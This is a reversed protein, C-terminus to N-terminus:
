EMIKAYTWNGDTGKKVTFDTQSSLTPIYELGGSKILDKGSKVEPYKKSIETIYGLYLQKIGRKTSEVCNTSSGSLPNKIDQIPPIKKERDMLWDIDKKEAPLKQAYRGLIEKTITQCGENEDYGDLAIIFFRSAASLFDGSKARELISLFRSAEPADSQMSAIKYYNESAKKEGINHATIAMYYPILGNSCPNKLSENNWLNTGIEEKGILEIKKTDCNTSMGKKGLVYAEQAIKLDRQYTTKEENPVPAMLLALTYTRTFHPHLTSITSILPNIYTLYKGNGINDGIYQILDIWLKDAYTHTHGATSLTINEPSPLLEPHLRRYDWLKSYEEYSSGTEIKFYSFFAGLFAISGLIIFILKKM